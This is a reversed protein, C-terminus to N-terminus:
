GSAMKRTLVAHAKNTRSNGLSELTAPNDPKVEVLEVM